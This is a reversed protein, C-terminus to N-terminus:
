GFQLEGIGIRAHAQHRHRVHEFIGLGVVDRQELAQQLGLAIVRHAVPTLSTVGTVKLSTTGVGEIPRPGGPVEEVYVGPSLYEPM